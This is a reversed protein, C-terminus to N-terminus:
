GPVNRFGWPHHRCVQRPGGPPRGREALRPRSGRDSGSGCPGGSGARPGRGSLVVANPTSRGRVTADSSFSGAGHVFFTSRKVRADDVHRSTALSCYRRSRGFPHCRRATGPPPRQHRDGSKRSLPVSSVVNDAPPCASTASTTPHRRKRSDTHMRCRGVTGHRDQVQGTLSLSPSQTRYIQRLVSVGRNIGFCQDGPPRDLLPILASEIWVDPTGTYRRRSRQFYSRANRQHGLM